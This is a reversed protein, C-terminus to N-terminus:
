QYQKAEKMVQHLAETGQNHWKNPPNGLGAAVRTPKRMCLKLTETLPRTCEKNNSMWQSFKSPWTLKMFVLSSEFSEESECDVLGKIRKGDQEGGLFKVVSKKQEM